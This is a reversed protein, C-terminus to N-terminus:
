EASGRQIRFRVFLPGDLESRRAKEFANVMERYVAEKAVAGEAAWGNTNFVNKVGARVTMSRSWGQTKKAEGAIWRISVKFGTGDGAREAICTVTRMDKPLTSELEHALTDLRQGTLPQGQLSVDIGSTGAAADIQVERVLSALNIALPRFSENKSKELRTRVGPLAGLGFANTIKATVAARGPADGAAAFADLVPALDSEAAPAITVPVPPSLPPLGNESRWQNRLRAIQVDWDTSTGVWQFQYKQPWRQALVLAAMDCVRPDAYSFENYIGELGVRREADDLASILLREIAAGAEGAPLAAMYDNPSSPAHVTKGLGFGGGNKPFPLFVQVVALRVDVPAKQDDRGLAEIAKADGSTALFTILGGVEGYADAEDTSLRPQIKRWAEIMAPVAEKPHGGKFLAEAAHVQSYLGNSPALKSKLFALPMDGPLKGAVEVFEGRYGERTSARIGAEIADIAADPYKEVLKRAAACGAQDGTAAAKILVEKEGKGQVEAWWDEAIQRTTKGIPKGADTRRQYFSRGSMFELIRQAVNGVRNVTERGLSNFRPEIFRTFRRDDLAEILQPVAVPGLDVLRHVPTIITIVKAGHRQTAMLPYKENMVWYASGLNRLQYINEAVQEAPSMQDLPKPHHAAEEAIMKRLLDAAEQAYAVRPSAPFRAAFPEYRKLLEALSIAPRGFEAETRNLLEEGIQQQLADRLLAPNIKGTQEDPINACADFLAAATDALGKQQCARAFAFIRARHSLPSGWQLDFSGRLGPYRASFTDERAKYDQPGSAVDRVRALVDAAVKPFDLVEYDVRQHIPVDTKRVFRVTTLPPYPESMGFGDQFDSVSCVFVTFGGEPEEGTLFGEVFRNEPPRNGRITYLGTAVRVYPLTKADPYGLTDYWAVADSVGDARAAPAAISCTALAALAILLTPRHRYCM